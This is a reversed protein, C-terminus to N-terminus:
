SAVEKLMVDRDSVSARLAKVERDDKTPSDTVIQVFIDELSPRHLEIRAPPMESVIDRIVSAPDSRDTLYLKWAGGEREVARIGSLRSLATVDAEM